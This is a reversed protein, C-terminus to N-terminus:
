FIFFFLLLLFFFGGVNCLVVLFVWTELGVFDLFFFVGLRHLGLRIRTSSSMALM